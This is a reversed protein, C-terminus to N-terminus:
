KCLLLKKRKYKPEYEIAKKYAKKQTHMYPKMDEILVDNNKNLGLTNNKLYEAWEELIKNQYSIAHEKM